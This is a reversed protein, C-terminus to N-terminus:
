IEDCRNSYCGNCLNRIWIEDNVDQAFPDPLSQVDPKRDGCEDCRKNKPM